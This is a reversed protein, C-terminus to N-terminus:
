YWYEKRREIVFYLNKKEEAETKRKDKRSYFLERENWKWNKNGMGTVSYLKREREEPLICIGRGIEKGIIFKM